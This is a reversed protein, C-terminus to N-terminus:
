KMSEWVKRFTGTSPVRIGFWDENMVAVQEDYISNGDSLVVHDGPLKSDQNIVISNLTPIDNMKCYYGIIGLQRGLTFGVRRDSYGMKLALNGYTITPLGASKSRPAGMVVSVLIVWIQQATVYLRENSGYRKIAPIDTM